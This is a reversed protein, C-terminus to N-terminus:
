AIGLDRFLARNFSNMPLAALEDPHFWGVEVNEDGDSRARGSVVEAGYVASVYAVEDGNPYAVRYAPGGLVGLLGTLAVEVGAEEAVERVAAHEPAEDPEVMGGLTIWDGAVVRALLVRGDDDFPLVAVSPLLLLRHGVTARLDRLFASMAM